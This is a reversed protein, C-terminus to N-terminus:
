EVRVSWKPDLPKKSNRLFRNYRGMPSDASYRKQKKKQLRPGLILRKERQNLRRAAARARARKAREIDAREVFQPRGNVKMLMFQNAPRSETKGDVTLTIVGEAPAAPIVSPAAQDPAGPAAGAARAARAARYARKAAGRRSSRRGRARIIYATFRPGRIVPIIGMNPRRIVAQDQIIEWEIEPAGRAAPNLPGGCDACFKAGARNVRGCICPAGAAAKDLPGGCNACFKAGARNVRGCKCPAGGPAGRKLM